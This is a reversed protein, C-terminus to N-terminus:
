CFYKRIVRNLLQKKVPKYCYIGIWLHNKMADNLGRVLPSTEELTKNTESVMVKSESFKPPVISHILLKGREIKLEEAIQDEIELCKNPDTFELMIKEDTNIRAVEKFLKRELIRKIFFCSHNHQKLLEIFESDSLFEIRPFNTKAYEQFARRIMALIIRVTRHYYVASYMLYRAILISECVPLYKSKIKIHKGIREISRIVAEYDIVGYAVGTYYSDRNLYDLRDLDLEGSIIKGLSSKGKIYKVVKKTDIGNSELTEQLNNKVIEVTLEEHDKVLKEISHSFPLHGLDHLLAAIKLEECDLNLSECLKCALYYCGISHEFRTHVASPYVLNTFGLQKIWRLRQFEKTEIVSLVPTEIKVFGYLADKIWKM